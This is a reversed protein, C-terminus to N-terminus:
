NNPFVNKFCGCKPCVYIQKKTFAGNEIPSHQHNSNHQRSFVSVIDMVVMCAACEWGIMSMREPFMKKWAGDSKKVLNKLQEDTVRPPFFTRVLERFM